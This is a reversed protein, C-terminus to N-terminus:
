SDSQEAELAHPCVLYVLMTMFWVNMLFFGYMETRLFVKIKEWTTERATHAAHSNRLHELTGADLFMLLLQKQSKKSFNQDNETRSEVGFSDSTQFFAMFYSSPPISFGSFNPETFSSQFLFSVHVCCLDASTLCKEAGPTVVCCCAILISM